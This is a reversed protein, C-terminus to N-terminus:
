LLAKWYPIDIEITSNVEDQIKPSEKKLGSHRLDLHSELENFLYSRFDWGYVIIDTGMISLVPRSKLHLDSVQFRHRMVPILGPALNYWKTFIEKKEENSDPMIGWSELWIQNPGLIDELITQFPWQMKKTIEDDDELWNHFFSQKKVLREGNPVFFICKEKRDITHLVKLFTRHEPTFKISYKVEINDIESEKLGIWKAGELWDEPSAHTTTKTDRSWHKETREKIWYLFATFDEPIMIM